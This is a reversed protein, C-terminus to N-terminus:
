LSFSFTFEMNGSCDTFMGINETTPKRTARIIMHASRRSRRLGYQPQLTACMITVQAIEDIM